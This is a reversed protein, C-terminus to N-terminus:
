MHLLMVVNANNVEMKPPIWLNLGMLIFADSNYFGMPGDMFYTTSSPPVLLHSLKRCSSPPWSCTVDCKFIKKDYM